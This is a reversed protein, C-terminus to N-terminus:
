VTGKGLSKLIEKAFIEDRKSNLELGMKRTTIREMEKLLDDFSCGQSVMAVIHPAYSDYEDAPVGGIPDWRRLIAEVQRIMAKAQKKQTQNESDGNTM